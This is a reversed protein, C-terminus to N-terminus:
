TQFRYRVSVWFNRGPAPYFSEYAPPGYGIAGFQSYNRNLVNNLRGTVTWAGRSYQVGANVVGYGPLDGFQKKFDGDFVRNSRLLWEGTISWHEAPSFDVGFRVGNRSVDPVRNGALVGKRIYANTFTWDVSLHLASTAQWGAGAIVGEHRTPPLNTDTSYVPSVASPALAIENELDLRFVELRAFTRQRHWETGLEWSVGTQTRLVNGVAPPFLLEDVKPFRVNDARRAFLRWRPTPQFSMGVETLLRSDNVSLGAPFYYNDAVFNRVTARRAGVTLKLRPLVPLVLQGYLGRQQQDNSQPGLGSSLHYRAWMMDFGATLVLDGNRLPWDGVLRPTFERVRRSQTLAGSLYGAYDGTRNSLEADLALNNTLSQRVGFREMTSHGNLFDAGKGPEVQKPDIAVQAASLAGPFQLFDSTRQVEAFLSGTAHEYGVRAFGNSYSETNHDRYNHTRRKEGTVRYSFGNALRQSVGVNGSRGGYSGAGIQATATFGHPKRTIINIVGGVAQDGYLVSASGEVIEIRQVDNLKISSLDPPAIDPNNLRRGDVLVLTNNSATAGFGRLDVTSKADNGYLNTVQVGGRDRLVQQISTAGSKEIEQRTIVTIVTPVNVTAQAFRTGSVVVPAIQVPTSQQAEATLPAICALCAFAVAHLDGRVSPAARTPM